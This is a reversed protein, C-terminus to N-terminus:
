LIEKLRELLAKKSTFVEKIDEEDDSVTLVYGNDVPEINVGILTSSSDDDGDKYGPLTALNNM